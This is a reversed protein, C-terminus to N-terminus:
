KIYIKLKLFNINIIITQQFTQYNKTFFNAKRSILNFNKKEM